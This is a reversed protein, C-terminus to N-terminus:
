LSPSFRQFFIVMTLEKKLDEPGKDKSDKNLKQKIEQGKAFIDSSTRRAEIADAEKKETSM